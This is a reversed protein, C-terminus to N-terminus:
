DDSNIISEGVAILQDKDLGDLTQNKDVEDVYQQLMEDQKLLIAKADDIIHGEDKIKKAPLIELSGVDTNEVITRRLDIVETEAMDEVEIRVFNNKLDYKSVDSAPIIFHQPSFTNRIYEKEHTETDYVIIHKHQFAEGFDLQLPSGIYEVNYNLKQEAHYHGLFTQDWERFIEDSVKVMDGDHEVSVESRTQARVNWIANDVAIHAFLLKHGNPKDITKLDDIPDKSYPLFGVEVDSGGLKVKSPRDVVTVGPLQRLPTVSTVDWRQYHFMDHNGLLLHVYFPLEDRCLYKEFVEFTRQYTLVDIKQRDHFLDGACVITKIDRDIATEFIWELSKLCDEMRDTSRKHPHIHLDSFILIKAM